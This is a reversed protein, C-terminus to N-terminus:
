RSHCFIFVIFYQSGSKKRYFYPCIKYQPNKRVSAKEGIAHVWVVVFLLLGFIVVFHWYTPM